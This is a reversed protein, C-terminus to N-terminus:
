TTMKCLCKKKQPPYPPPKAPDKELQLSFPSSERQPAHAETTALAKNSQPMHFRRQGPILGTNGVNAPPNKDVASPFGLTSM